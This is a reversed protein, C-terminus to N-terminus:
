SMGLRRVGAPGFGIGPHGPRVVFFHQHLTKNVFFAREEGQMPRNTNEKHSSNKMNKAIEEDGIM